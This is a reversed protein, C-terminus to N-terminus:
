LFQDVLVNWGLEPYHGYVDHIPKGGLAALNEYESGMLGLLKRSEAEMWDSVDDGHMLHKMNMKPMKPQVICLWGNEYPEDTIIEPHERVAHNVALVAGTVPARVSAQHDGDRQFGFGTQNQRLPAGIQPTEVARMQGFLRVLFDDFGIRVFGGHDFRAWTHGRHYYYDDAIMYGSASKLDADAASADHTDYTDLWQDYECHHCEYNRTCVKKAKVRGTLTHRCLPTQGDAIFKQSLSSSWTNAEHRQGGSAQKQMAKRMGRDFPCTNCDFANDCLHFNVIGAKMWICRDDALQFGLASPKGQNLKLSRKM